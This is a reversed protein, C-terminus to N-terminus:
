ELWGCEAPGDIAVDQSPPEQGGAPDQAVFPDPHEVCVYPDIACIM